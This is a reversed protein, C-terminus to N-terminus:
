IGKKRKSVVSVMLPLGIITLIANFILIPGRLHYKDGIWSTAFMLIGAAAYPPAFLCLSAGMSFGMGQRYIIPLFYSIAYATTTTSYYIFGFAWINIDLGASLYKKLNFPEITVDARDKTIRRIIFEYEGESLFKQKNNKMRDPFDILVFYGIIAVVCTLLGQIVYIWRWATLGGLGHMFTIGYSLIGTFASAVCGLLYFIAYRKQIDYRTYWTSILYVAAPFFGAELAGIIVRIGLLGVYQTGRLKLEKEMGAVSATGLNGRDILSVTHLFGLMVILRADIRRIIKRQERYSYVPDDDINNLMPKQSEVPEVQAESIKSDEVTTM